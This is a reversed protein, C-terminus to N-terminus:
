GNLMEIKPTTGNEGFLTIFVAADTGGGAVDGTVVTIRYVLLLVFVMLVARSCNTTLYEKFIDM